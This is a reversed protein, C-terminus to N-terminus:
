CTVLMDVMHDVEAGESSNPLRPGLAVSYGEATAVQPPTGYAVSKGSYVVYVSESLVDTSNGSVNVSSDGAPAVLITQQESM